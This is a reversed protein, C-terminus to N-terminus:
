TIYITYFLLKYSWVFGFIRLFEQFLLEFIKPTASWELRLCTWEVSTVRITMLYNIILSTGLYNGLSFPHLKSTCLMSSVIKLM